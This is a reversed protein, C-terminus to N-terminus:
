EEDAEVEEALDIMAVETRADPAPGVFYYPGVQWAFVQYDKARKRTLRHLIAAAASGPGQEAALRALEDDTVRTIEM